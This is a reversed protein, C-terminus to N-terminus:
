IFMIDMSLICHVSISLLSIILVISGRELHNSVLVRRGDLLSMYNDSYLVTKSQPIAIQFVRELVDNSTYIDGANMISLWEGSAMKIAKNMADYIGDDPESKFM